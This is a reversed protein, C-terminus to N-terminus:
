RTEADCVIRGFESPAMSPCKRSTPNVSCRLFFRVRNIPSFISFPRSSAILKIPILSQFLINQITCGPPADINLSISSLTPNSSCFNLAVLCTSLSYPFMDLAQTSNMNSSILLFDMSSPLAVVPSPSSQPTRKPNPGPKVMSVRTKCLAAM